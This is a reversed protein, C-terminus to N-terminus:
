GAGEWAEALWGAVEDDIEPAGHLELHHMWIRASPHAVQKWRRSPDGRPLAISLVVDAAPNRLWTGPPWLYAFGRRRRYALQTTTVRVDVTGLANLIELVRAHALLGLPHGAFLSEPTM